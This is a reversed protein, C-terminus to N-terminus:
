QLVPRQAFVIARAYSNIPVPVTQALTLTGDAGIVLVSVEFSPNTASPPITVLLFQGSPDAAGATASIPLDSGYGLRCVM